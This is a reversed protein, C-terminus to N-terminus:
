IAEFAKDVIREEKRLPLIPRDAEIKNRVLGDGQDQPCTLAASFSTPV